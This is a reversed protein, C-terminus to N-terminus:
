FAMPEIMLVSERDVVVAGVPYGKPKRVYKKPTYIVPCLTDTKRKSYYAALQAAKEIVNKPFVKGSQYKIVVHSGSVGRAHLWLDEKYTHKQTLIDNNAASKGVLIQFGQYMFTKFLSGEKNQKKTSSIAEKKLYKRLDKLREAAQIEEIQYTITLLQEEKQEFNQKLKKIEIKQNKAKRYYNEANKQPSLNEKLKIKIPQNTYFDMLEIEKTRPPIAHLNAMLIHGVEEHRSENQLKDLQRKTKKLYSEHQKSQRNLAKIIQQREKELYYDKSWHSYFQNIAELANQSHFLVEGEEFLRFVVSEAVKLVYFTPNEFSKLLNEIKEWQEPVALNQLELYSIVPKGFTPFVKQVGKEELEKQNQLIPRDLKTLDIKKDQEYRNNFSESFKGGEFLVINASKGHMKFLLVYNKEFHISFSRENKYQKIELVELDLLDQFLNVSNKKARTYEKPFSLCSIDNNLISKIWFERHPSCFGLVLEDKNQSFCTALKLGKIESLLESSLNKLFYYNNQM